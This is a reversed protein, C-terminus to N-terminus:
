IPRTGKNIVISRSVNRIVRSEPENVGSTDCAERVLSQYKDSNSSFANNYDPHAIRWDQLRKINEASIRKVANMMKPNGDNDKTWMDNDKIYLTERKADSCHVPRMTEDMENLNKIIINSIGTVFGKDGVTEVDQLSIKINEIFDTINIADKCTENLFIQLNFTNNNTNTNNNTIITRTPIVSSLDIVTQRLSATENILYNLLESNSKSQSNYNTESIVSSLVDPTSTSICTQKKTHRYLGSSSMFVKDCKECVYTKNASNDMNEVESNISKHKEMFKGYIQHKNTELHALFNQKTTGLYDCFSCYLPNNLNLTNCKKDHREHSGLAMEQKQHKRTALHKNFHQTNNSRYDCLNCYYKSVSKKHNKVSKMTGSVSKINLSFIFIQVTQCMKRACKKRALM